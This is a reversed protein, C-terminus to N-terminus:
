SVQRCPEMFTLLFDKKVGRLRPHRQVFSYLEEVQSYPFYFPKLDEFHEHAAKLMVQNRDSDDAVIVYYTSLNPGLNKFSLMRDLGSTVGTSHEVEFAFPLGGNFFLCDVHKGKDVAAPYNSISPELALNKVIFPYQIIPRGHHQIGHDEVAIWTRLALANGIESLAVQMQSHRRQVDLPLDSHPPAPVVDYMTEHSPVESIIYEDGLDMNVIQGMPHPPLEGRFVIHKHGRQVTMRGNENEWRGPSCTFFEPTHALLSELVSRNNYSAGVARDVNVPLGSSLANAFRWIMKTGIRETDSFSASPSSRRRYTIPGEPHQVHVIQIAGHNNPNVYPYLRSRDLGAIATCIDAATIIRTM